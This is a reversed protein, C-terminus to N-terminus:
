KKKKKAATAQYSWDILNKIMGDNESAESLLISIWKEKNMHYAPFFGPQMRLSGSLILDCKVNLVDVEGEGTLGIKDRLSGYVLGYWKTITKYATTCCELREM